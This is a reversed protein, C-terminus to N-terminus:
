WALGWRAAVSRLRQERLQRSEPSSGAPALAEFVEARYRAVADLAAALQPWASAVAPASATYTAAEPPRERAFSKDFEEVIRRVRQRQEGFDSAALAQASDVFLATGGVLINASARALRGAEPAPEL